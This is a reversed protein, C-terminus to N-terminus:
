ENKILSQKLQKLSSKRNHESPYSANKYAQRFAQLSNVQDGLAVKADINHKKINV